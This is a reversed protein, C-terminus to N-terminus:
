RNVPRGLLSIGPVCDLPGCRVQDRSVFERVLAAQDSTVGDDTVSIVHNPLDLLECETSHRLRTHSNCRVNVVLERDGSGDRKRMIPEPSRGLEYSFIEHIRLSTRNKSKKM